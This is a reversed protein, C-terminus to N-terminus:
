CNAGFIYIYLYYKGSNTLTYGDYFSLLASSLDGAQYSIYFYYNYIRCRWDAYTNLYIPSKLISYSNAINLTINAQLIENKSKLEKLYHEWLFKGENKLFNLLSINIKFKVSNLFNIYNYLLKRNEVVYKHEKSGKILDNKEIINSLVWGKM